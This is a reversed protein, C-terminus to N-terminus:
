RDVGIIPGLLYPFDALQLIEKSFFQMLTVVYIILLFSAIGSKIPMSLAFVNLQPAFRSILALGFEAMFMAIVIPAAMLVCLTLMQEFQGYFFDVWQEGIEPFFTMVPWHQYSDFIAGMFAIFSGSVFFLTILTQTFLVGTPTSQHGLAPNFASALTAGRQNDIFFGTAEIAWFPIAAIFSILLGLLIEKALLLVLMIGDVSSPHPQEAVVPYLYIALSCLVGNRLLASGLMQKSLIPLMIFCGFLRPLTMSYVLFFQQFDEITM